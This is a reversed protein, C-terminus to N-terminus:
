RESIKKNIINWAKELQKTELPLSKITKPNITPYKEINEFPFPFFNFKNYISIARYSWTQTTLYVVQEKPLISFLRFLMAHTLRQGQHKPDVAIWHLRQLTIDNVKTYWMMATAVKEGNTDVVFLLRDKLLHLHDKFESDFRTYAKEMNEFHNVKVQIKAWDYRANEGYYQFKYGSKLPYKPIAKTNDKIMTVGIKEISTDLGTNNINNTM